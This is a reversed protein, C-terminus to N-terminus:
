KSKKRSANFLPEYTANKSWLVHMLVALKRAVAVVGRKKANKGGRAAIKQGHRRLDCDEGFPGMIYQASNVLLSRLFEDGEKTIRLQPDRDGSEDKAPVLGLYPGVSRSTEFRGPDEIILVYALSLIPGVGKIKRLLATEKFKDRCLEEVQRDYRRVKVTLLAITELIPEIAPELSDPVYDVAKKAFAEASCKCIRSGASKVSGRVHCILRSRASVLSERSRLLGLAAQGSEGRHEIPSLLKPDARALRALLEADIKDSKRKNGSILRVKRPNAVIVEHGLEKLLRSVWRSHTGVEIAIRMPKCTFRKRLRAETTQVRGEEAVEGETDLVCYRSFKDGLDLGAADPVEVVVAEETMPPTNTITEEM